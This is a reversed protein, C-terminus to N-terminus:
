ALFGYVTESWPVPELNVECRDSVGHYWAYKVKQATWKGDRENNQMSEAIRRWTDDYDQQLTAEDIYRLQCISSVEEMRFIQMFTDHAAASAIRQIAEIVKRQDHYWSRRNKKVVGRRSFLALIDGWDEGRERM